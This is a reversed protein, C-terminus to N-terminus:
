AVTAVVDDGEDRDPPLVAFPAIFAECPRGKPTARIEIFLRGLLRQRRTSPAPRMDWARGDILEWREDEPWTKYRRYTFRAGPDAAPNGLREM